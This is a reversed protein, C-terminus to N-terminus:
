TDYVTKKIQQGNMKNPGSMSSCAKEFERRAKREILRQESREIIDKSTCTVIFSRYFFFPREAYKRFTPESMGMFQYAAKRTRYNYVEGCSTDIIIVM